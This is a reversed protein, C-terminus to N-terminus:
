SAVLVDYSAFTSSSMSKLCTEGALLDYLAQAVTVISSNHLFRTHISDYKARVDM